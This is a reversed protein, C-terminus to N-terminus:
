YGNELLLSKYTKQGRTEWHLNQGEKWCDHLHVPGPGKNLHYEQWVRRDLQWPQLTPVTNGLIHLKRWARTQGKALGAWTLTPGDTKSTVRQPSLKFPCSSLLPFGHRQAPGRNSSVRMYLAQQMGDPWEFVGWKCTLDPESGWTEAPLKM